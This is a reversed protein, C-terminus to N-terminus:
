SSTSAATPGEFPPRGALLDYLTAGLGYVDTRRDLARGEGKAQEPSMFKPTGLM